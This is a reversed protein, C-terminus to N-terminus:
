GNLFKPKTLREAIMHFVLAPSFIFGLAIFMMAFQFLPDIAELMEKSM